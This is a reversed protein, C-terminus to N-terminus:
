ATRVRRIEVGVGAADALIRTKEASVTVARARPDALCIEAVQEAFTEVLGTHGKAALQRISDAIDAYSVVHAIDDERWRPNPAVHLAINLCVPQSKEKEFDHIGISMDIVLDRIIVTDYPELTM